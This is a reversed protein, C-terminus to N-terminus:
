KKWVGLRLEKALYDAQDVSVIRQGTFIDGSGEELYCGSGLDCVVFSFNYFDNLSGEIHSRIKLEDEDLVAERMTENLLIDDLIIELAEKSFPATDESEIKDEFVFLFVGLLILCAMIAEFVKFWGRSNVM